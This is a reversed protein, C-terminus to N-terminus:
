QCEAMGMRKHGTQPQMGVVITPSYNPCLGGSRCLSFHKEVQGKVSLTGVAPKSGHWGQTQLNETGEDTCHPHLPLGRPSSCGPGPHPTHQPSPRHRTRNGLRGQPAHLGVESGHPLAVDSSHFPKLDKRGKGGPNQTHPPGPLRSAWTESPLSSALTIGLCQPGPPKPPTHTHTHTHLVLVGLGPPTSKSQCLRQEVRAPPHPPVQCGQPQLQGRSYHTRQGGAAAAKPTPFCRGPAGGPAEEALLQQSPRSSPVPRPQTQPCSLGLWHRHLESLTGPESSLARCM